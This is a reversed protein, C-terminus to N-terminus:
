DRGRRGEQRREKDEPVPKKTQRRDGLEIERRDFRRYHPVRDEPKTEPQGRLLSFIVGVVVVLSLVLMPSTTLLQWISDV